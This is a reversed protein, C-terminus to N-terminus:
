LPISRRYKRNQHLRATFISQDELSSHLTFAIVSTIMLPLLLSYDSTMEVLLVIATLPARCTAAVAGAIGLLAYLGPFPAINPAVLQLIMGYAGGLMAGGFLVPGFIGGFFGSSILMSHALLFIVLLLLLTLLSMQGLLAQEIGEFGGFQIYPFYIVTGWAILISVLMSPFKALHLKRWVTEFGYLTKIHIYAYIGCLLGLLLFFPIEGISSWTYEPVRFIPSRGFMWQSMLSASFSSIIILSFYQTSYKRLLIEIVFVIGGLPANFLASLSGAAGCALLIRTKNPSKRFRNAVQNAVGAGFYISPGFSGVPLGVFLSLISGVTNFVVDKKSLSIDKIYGAIMVDAIGQPKTWRLLLFATALLGFFLLILRGISETIGFDLTFALFNENLYRPLFRIASAGLSALIGIMAALCSLWIFQTRRLKKHLFRKNNSSM